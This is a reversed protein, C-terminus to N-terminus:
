HWIPDATPKPQPDLDAFNLEFEGEDSIRLNFQVTTKAERNGAPYWSVNIVAGRDGPFPYDVFARVDEGDVTISSAQINGSRGDQSRYGRVTVGALKAARLPIIASAMTYATLARNNHM